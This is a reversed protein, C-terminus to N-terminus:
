DAYAACTDVLRTSDVLMGTYWYGDNVFGCLDTLLETQLAPQSAALNVAEDPDAAMDYLENLEGPYRNHRSYPPCSGNGMDEDRLYKTQGRVIGATEVDREFFVDHDQLAGGLVDDVLSRGERDGSWDLGAVEALTPAMDVQSVWGELALGGPLRDEAEIAFTVALADNYPSCGHYLYDSRQGLSEGHDVGFMVVADELLGREGIGELLEGFLDDTDRVQSMYVAKVHALDAEDFPIQGLIAADLDSDSSADIDGEYPGPHFESYYPEILTYPVHPNMLHIWVFLPQDTPRLDLQGWFEDVLERDRVAHNDYVGENEHSWTCGRVDVGRDLFQCTNSAFGMVHYGADDFREMLTPQVPVAWGTNRRVGHSHPYVGTLISAVAPSTLSRVALVDRFHTSRTFFASINPHTEFSSQWGEMTHRALTDVAVVVVVPAPDWESIIDDPPDVETERCGLAALVALAPAFWALRIV